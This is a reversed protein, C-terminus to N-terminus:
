QVFFGLNGYQKYMKSDVMLKAEDLLSASESNSQGFDFKATTITASDLAISGLHVSLESLKQSCAPMIGYLQASVARIALITPSLIRPISSIGSITRIKQLTKTLIVLSLEVTSEIDVSDCLASDDNESYKLLRKNTERITIRKSKLDGVLERLLKVSYDLRPTITVTQTINRSTYDVQEFKLM